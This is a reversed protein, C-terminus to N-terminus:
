GLLIIELLENVTLRLKGGGWIVYNGDTEVTQFFAEDALKAYKMTHLKGSLDVMVNSGSEMDIFLRHGRVPMVNRIYSM